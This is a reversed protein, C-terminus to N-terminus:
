NTEEGLEFRVFRRISINEGLKAVTDTVVEKMTKDPDKVFHQEMLVVEQYFKNLRGEVIKEVINAPKGSNEAQSKFVDMEKAVVEESVDERNVAVPNTAAVQMAFSRAMEKFDDTKAVFDTECNIEVM